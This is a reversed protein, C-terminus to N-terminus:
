RHAKRRTWVNRLANLKIRYPGVGHIDQQDPAVIGSVSMSPAGPRTVDTPEGPGASSALGAGLRRFAHDDIM